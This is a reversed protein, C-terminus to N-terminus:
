IPRTLSVRPWNDLGRAHEHARISRLWDPEAGPTVDRFGIRRYYPANWPVDAFTTLALTELGRDRAWAAAADLLAAGIRRGRHAPHVSVQEVFAAGPFVDLLLYGIPADRDDTAVWARGDAQYRQLHDVPPPDDDAVATMGITRFPQGAAREVEQLLALEDRRARRIPVAPGDHPGTATDLVATDLVATDLVATDLVATDLVTRGLVTADRVASGLVASGLVPDVLADAYARVAPGYRPLTAALAGLAARLAEAPRGADFLALALFADVAAGVSPDAPVDALLLVAAAPNGVNRLSSALQVLAQARRAGTLGGDLAQRYLPVADAERGLFDHLGAWEFLAIPDGAPREDVLRRMGALMAAPETGDARAWFEEVRAEWSDPGGVM